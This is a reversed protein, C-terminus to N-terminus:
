KDNVRMTYETPQMGFEKKFCVSFYKPDNFGVRYALESIRISNNEDMIRCAAKLRLSRIFGTTNLGTAAKLKNHLVTRSTAMEDVFQMVNFDADGLHRNVCAVANDLFNEDDSPINSFIQLKLHHIKNTEGEQLHRKNRLMLRRRVEWWLGFLSIIACLVYIIYAQWTAYFPPLVLITMTRVKSWYGNEDTGKVEFTYKGAPLRSYCATRSAADTYHWTTDYGKIRYAYLTQKQHSYDLSAFCITFNSYASPITLLNTFDATYVSTEKREDSSLAELPRGDILIDTIRLCVDSQRENMIQSNFTIIGRSSGFYFKGKSYCSANQNFFNDALGDAVTFVRTRGKQEGTITLRVLGQNTGLWLNGHRDEEISAVMDGPLNYEQQVSHFCDKQSDYLCLGSGETGVWFRGSKDILFCLPTGAPLLGNEACYNKCQLTAPENKNGSVHVVGNNGTAFWLSEDNDSEVCTIEKTLLKNVKPIKNFCVERGDHYRVGLGKYSGVWWNGKSDEHVCYVLDHPVFGCNTTKYQKTIIGDRCVLIGEDHVAILVDKYIPSYSIHYPRRAPMLMTHRNKNTYEVGYGCGIYMAGNDEVFLTSILDNHKRGSSNTNITSFLHPRTDACFIGAGRTAIWMMGNRDRLVTNVESAPLFHPSGSEQYNTFCGDSAFPMVAVGNRTGIWLSHTQLDEHISYVFDSPLSTSKGGQHRYTQVTTLTRKNSSFTVKYIGYGSTGIWMIGQSDQFLAMISNGNDLPPYHIFRNERQQYRYLGDKWTGILLDGNEDELISQVNVNVPVDGTSNRHTMLVLTDKIADYYAMGSIYGLFIKSKKTVHIENLRHRTVGELHLKRTLGTRKDLICLGEHTGIWLRHSYDEEM